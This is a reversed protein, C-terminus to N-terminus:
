FGAMSLFFLDPDLRVKRKIFIQKEPIFVPIQIRTNKKITVRDINVNKREERMLMDSLM